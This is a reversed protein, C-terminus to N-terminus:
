LEMRPTKRESMLKDIINLLTDIDDNNKILFESAGTKMAKIAIDRDDYGTYVIVKVDPNMSKIKKLLELGDIDPLGLDLIVLNYEYKEFNYLAESGTNAITIEYENNLDSNSLLM